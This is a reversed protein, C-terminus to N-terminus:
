PSNRGEFITEALRDVEAERPRLAMFGVPCFVSILVYTDVDGGLFYFILGYLAPAAAILFIPTFLDAFKQELGDMQPPVKVRVVAPALLRRKLLFAAGIDAATVAILVYGMLKINEESAIPVSLFEFRSRLLLASALLLVPIGVCIHVGRRSVYGQIARNDIDM